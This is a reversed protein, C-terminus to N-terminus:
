DSRGRELVDISRLNVCIFIYFADSTMETFLFGELIDKKMEPAYIFKSKRGVQINPFDYCGALYIYIIDFFPHFLVRNGGWKGECCGFFKRAKM